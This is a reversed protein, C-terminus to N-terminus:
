IKISFWVERGLISSLSQLQARLCHIESTSEKLNSLENQMAGMKKPFSAVLEKFQAIMNKRGSGFFCCGAVLVNKFFFQFIQNFLIAYAYPFAGPGRLAKELKAEFLNQDQIYKQLEQESEAIGFELLESM